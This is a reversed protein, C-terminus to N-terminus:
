CSVSSAFKSKIRLQQGCRHFYFPIFALIVAVGAILSAGGGVGTADFMFSTFLPAAAGGLSRFVTSTAALMAALHIYSEILYGFCAVFILM